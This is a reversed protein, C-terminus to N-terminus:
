KSAPMLRGYLARAFIAVAMGQISTSLHDLVQNLWPGVTPIVSLSDSFEPLAIALVYFITRETADGLQGMGGAILGLVALVISWSSFPLQPIAALIAVVVMVAILVRESNM